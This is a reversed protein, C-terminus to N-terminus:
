LIKTLHRNSHCCINVACPLSAIHCPATEIFVNLATVKGGFGQPGIHTKNVATLFYKELTAYKKNKSPKDRLLAYKALLACQEFNGGLGIGIVLPPCAKSGGEKVINVIFDKIDEKTASPAFMKLASTNEAGGGKQMLSIKLKKGKVIKLHVIAPTNDKTNKRDFLPDEVISKRLYGEKFGQRVGEQLAEALNGKIMVDQGLEVFFVATGTDQCLPLKELPAIRANELTLSIIKKALGREKLLACKLSKVVSPTLKYAAEICMDKVTRTILSTKIGRM